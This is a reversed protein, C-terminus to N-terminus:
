AGAVLLEKSEVAESFGAVMRIPLSKDRARPVSIAQKERQPHAGFTLSRLANREIRDM